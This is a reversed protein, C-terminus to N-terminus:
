TRKKTNGFAKMSISEVILEVVRDALLRLSWTARGEPPSSCCLAILKAERDGDFRRRIGRPYPRRSLVAEYGEKVFQRRIRFVTELSLDFAQCIQKDNWDGKERGEDMKLLIKAKIARKVKEQSNRAIRELDAKENEKLKVVYKKRM